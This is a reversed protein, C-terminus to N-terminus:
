QKNPHLCYHMDGHTIQLQKKRKCPMFIGNIVCLPSVRVCDRACVCVCVFVCLCVCVCLVCLVCVCVCLVCVVCVCVRVCVYVCACPCACVCVSVPWALAAGGKIVSCGVSGEWTLITHIGVSRSSKITMRKQGNISSEMLGSPGPHGM